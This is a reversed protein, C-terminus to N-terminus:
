RLFFFHSGYGDWDSIRLSGDSACKNKPNDNTRNKPESHSPQNKALAAGALWIAGVVKEKVFVRWRAMEEANVSFVRPVRDIREISSRAAVPEGIELARQRGGQLGLYVEALIKCDALASHDGRKAYGPIYRIGLADLGAPAGPNVRRAMKMTCLIPNSLPPLGCLELEANLFKVDFDANQIVLQDQGIFELFKEAIERFKPKGRVDDNTRGHIRTADAPIDREPDILTSRHVGTPLSNILELTALEIIRHGQSPSLGTTESDLIIERM